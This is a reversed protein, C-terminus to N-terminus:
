YGIVPPPADEDAQWPDDDVDRWDGQDVTPPAAQTVVSDEGDRGASEGRPTDGAASDDSTRAADDTAPKEPEPTTFLGPPPELNAVGPLEDAGSLPATLGPVPLGDAGILGPPLPQAAGPDQAGSPSPSAGPKDNTTM